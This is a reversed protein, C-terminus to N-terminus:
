GGWYTSRGVWHINAGFRSGVRLAHQGGKGVCLESFTRVDVRFDYWFISSVELTHQCIVTSQLQDAGPAQDTVVLSFDCTSDDAIPSARRLLGARLGISESPACNKEGWTEVRDTRMKTAEGFPERDRASEVQPRAPTCCSIDRPRPSKAHRRDPFRQKQANAPPRAPADPNIISSKRNVIPPHPAYILRSQKDFCGPGRPHISRRSRNAADSGAIVLDAPSCSFPM